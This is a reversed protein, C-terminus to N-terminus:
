VSSFTPADKMLVHFETNGDNLNKRYIEINDGKYRVGGNQYIVNSTITVTKDENANWKQGSVDNTTGTGTKEGKFILSGARANNLQTKIADDLSVTITSGSANTKIEGNT